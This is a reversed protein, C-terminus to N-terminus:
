HIHRRRRRGYYVAALNGLHHVVDHVAGRVAVIGSSRLPGEAPHLARRVMSGLGDAGILLDGEAVQGDAMQLTVRDATASFGTASRQLTMADVGVADLLAGHLAPRLAMVLPGGLSGPPLEARKLVTGDMRRFEGNWPQVARSLVTDAVGLDRLAAIANPALGVGFRARTTVDGTRLNPYEM